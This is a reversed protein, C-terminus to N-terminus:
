QERRKPVTREERSLDKRRLESATKKSSKDLDPRTRPSLRREKRVKESKGQFRRGRSELSRRLTPAAGVLAVSAM